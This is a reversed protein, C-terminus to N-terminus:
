YKLFDGVVELYAGAEDGGEQMEKRAQKAKTLEAKLFEMLKDGTKATDRSATRQGESAALPSRELRYLTLAWAFTQEPDANPTILGLVAQTRATRALRSLRAQERSAEASARESWPREPGGWFTEGADGATAADVARAFQEADKKAEAIAFRAKAIADASAEGTWAPVRALKASLADLQTAIASAEASAVVPAIALKMAALRAKAHDLRKAVSQGDQKDGVALTAGESVAAAVAEAAGRQTGLVLSVGGRVRKLVEAANVTQRNTGRAARLLYDSESLRTAEKEDGAPTAAIKSLEQRLADRLAIFRTIQAKLEGLKQPDRDGRAVAALADVAPSARLRYRAALERLKDRMHDGSSADGSDLSVMARLTIADLAAQLTQQESRAIALLENADKGTQESVGQNLLEALKATRSQNAEIKAIVRKLEAEPTRTPLLTSLTAASASATQELRIEALRDASLANAALGHKTELSGEEGARAGRTAQMEAIRWLSRIAEAAIMEADRQKAIESDAALLAVVANGSPADDVGRVRQAIAFVAVRRWWSAIPTRDALAGAADLWSLMAERKAEDSIDARAARRLLEDYDLLARGRADAAPRNALEIMRLLLPQAVAELTTRLSNCATRRRSLGGRGLTYATENLTGVLDSAAKTDADKIERSLETIEDGIDQLSALYLAGRRNLRDMVEKPAEQDSPIAAITDAIRGAEEGMDRVRWFLNALQRHRLMPLMRDNVLPRLESAVRKSRPADGLTSTIWALSSRTLRVDDKHASEATLYHEGDLLALMQPITGEPPVAIGAKAAQKVADEYVEPAIPLYAQADSEPKIESEAIKTLLRSVWRLTAIRKREEEGRTFPVVRVIAERSVGDGGAIDRGRVSIAVSDGPVAGLENLDVRASVAQRMAGKTPLVVPFEKPAPERKPDPNLVCRVVIEALGFDDEAVGEVSVISGAVADSEAAPADLRLTPPQDDIAAIQIVTRTEPTFGFEDAVDIEWAVADKLKWKYTGLRKEEDWEPTIAAKGPQKLEHRVVTEETRFALELETGRLFRQPRALDTVTTEPLGYIVPPKVVLKVDLVRPPSAVRITRPVSEANGARVRYTLTERVSPRTLLFLDRRVRLMRPQTQPGSGESVIATVSTPSAGLWRMVPALFAPTDDTIVAQIVAEGDRRIVPKAANADIKVFSARQLEAHPRYFRRLMLAFEYRAPLLLAAFLLAIVGLTIALRRAVADRALDAARVDAFREIAGRRLQELLDARTAAGADASATALLGQTRLSELTVLREEARGALRSELEYCLRTASPRTLVVVVAGAIFSVVTATMVGVLWQVRAADALFVFRDVHVAVLLLIAHVILTIMVVRSWRLVARRRAFAALASALEPPLQTRDHTM